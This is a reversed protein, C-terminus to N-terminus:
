LEAHTRDYSWRGARGWDIEVQGRAIMYKECAARM